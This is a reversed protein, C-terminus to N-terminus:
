KVGAPPRVDGYEFRTSFHSKGMKEGLDLDMETRLPLGRSKSIWSLVDSKTGEQESHESYVAAAEGNVSEDRLYRCTVTKSNRLNEAERKQIDQTTVPSRSWKGGVKVYSADGTNITETSNPKGGPAALMTTYLHKPTVIAKAMADLVPQCAAPATAARVPLGAAFGILLVSAGARAVIALANAFSTRHICNMLM